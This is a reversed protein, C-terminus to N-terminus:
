IGQQRVHPRADTRLAPCACARRRVLLPARSVLLLRTGNGYLKAGRGDPTLGIQRVVSQMYVQSALEACSARQVRVLGMCLGSAAGHVSTKCIEESLTVHGPEDDVCFPLPPRAGDGGVSRGGGSWRRGHRPQHESPAAHLSSNHRNIGRHGSNAGTHFHQGSGVAAISTRNTGAHQNRQGTNREQLRQQLALFRDALLSPKSKALALITDRSDLGAASASALGSMYRLKEAGLAAWAEGGDGLSPAAPSSDATGASWTCPLLLMIWLSLTPITRM